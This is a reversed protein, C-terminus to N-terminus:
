SSRSRKRLNRTTLHRTTPYLKRIADPPRLAMKRLEHACPSDDDAGSCLTMCARALADCHASSTPTELYLAMDRWFHTRRDDAGGLRILAADVTDAHLHYDLARLIALEACRVADVSLARRTEYLLESMSAHWTSHLKAAIHMAAIGLADLEARGLPPQVRPAPGGAPPPSPTPLPQAQLTGSPTVDMPQPSLGAISVGSSDATLKRSKRAPIRSAAPTWGDLSAGAPSPMAGGSASGAPTAAGAASTTARHYREVLLTALHPVRPEDPFLRTCAPLLWNLLGSRQKASLPSGVASLADWQITASTPALVATASPGASSAIVETEPSPVAARLQPGRRAMAPARASVEAEAEESGAAPEHSSSSAGGVTSALRTSRRIPQAALSSRRGGAPRTSPLPLCLEDALEAATPRKSPDLSLARDLVKSTYPWRVATSPWRQGDVRAARFAPFHASYFPLATIGPWSAPTPTGARQFISMLTAWQSFEGDQCLEHRGNLMFLHVLGISFVDCAPGYNTDGLLLEPARYIVTGAEYTHLRGEIKVAEGFDALRVRPSPSRDILLNAPKIDRHMFGIAHMHAVALALQQVLRLIHEEAGRGSAIRLKYEKGVTTEVHEMVMTPVPAVPEHHLSHVAIIHHCTGCARVCALERLTSYHVGYEDYEGCNDKFEKIAVVKGLVSDLVCSVAGFSGEDIPRRNSFRQATAITGEVGGQQQPKGAAEIPPHPKIAAARKSPRM